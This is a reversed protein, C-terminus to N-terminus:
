SHKFYEAIVDALLARGAENPHLGDASYIQWDEWKEHPFVDHYLDIIELGLEEAVKIEANVYDELVYGGLVYEECTLEHETYWTYPPTALVIRMDPYTDQMLRVSSRLAGIFTHEDYMSNGCDSAGVANITEGAHYDNLGFGILLIEVESFDIEKLGAVTGPFYDPRMEMDKPNEQVRFDGSVIAKSLSVMSLADTMISKGRSDELRGMCTGGLAGNYIKIGLQQELLAPIGTEDRVYGYTSDGMIVMDYSQEVAQASSNEKINVDKGTIDPLGTVLLVVFCLVALVGYIIKIRNKTM